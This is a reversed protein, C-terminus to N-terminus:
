ALRFHYHDSTTPASCHHFDSLPIADPTGSVMLSIGHDPIDQHIEVDPSFWGRATLTPLSARGTSLVRDGRVIKAPLVPPFEIEKLRDCVAKAFDDEPNM